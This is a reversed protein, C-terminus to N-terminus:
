NSLECELRFIAKAIMRVEVGVNVRMKLKVRVRVKVELNVMANVEAKPKEVVKVTGWVKLILKVKLKLEM